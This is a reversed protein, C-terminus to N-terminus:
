VEVSKQGHIKTVILINYLEHKFQNNNLYM